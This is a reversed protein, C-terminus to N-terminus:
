YLKSFQPEDSMQAFYGNVSSVELSGLRLINIGGTPPSRLYGLDVPSATTGLHVFRIM